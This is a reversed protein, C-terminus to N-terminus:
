GSPVVDLSRAAAAFSKAEVTRCFFTIARLKDIQM